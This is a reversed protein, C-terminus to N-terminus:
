GADQELDEVTFGVSLSEQSSVVPRRAADRSQPLPHDLRVDREHLGRPGEVEVEVELVV